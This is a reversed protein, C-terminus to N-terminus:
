ALWDPKQKPGHLRPGLGSIAVSILLQTTSDYSCYVVSILTIIYWDRTQDERGREEAVPKVFYNCPQCHFHIYINRFQEPLFQLKLKRGFFTHVPATFFISSNEDMGALKSQIKCRVIDLAGFGIKCLICWHSGNLDLKWGIIVAWLLDIPGPHPRTSVLWLHTRYSGSRQWVIQWSVLLYHKYNKFHRIHIHSFKFNSTYSHCPVLRVLELIVWPPRWGSWGILDEHGRAKFFICVNWM